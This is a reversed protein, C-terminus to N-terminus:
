KGVRLDHLFEGANDLPIVLEITTNIELKIASHYSFLIIESRTQNKHINQTSSFFSCKEM